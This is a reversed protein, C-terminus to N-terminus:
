SGDPVLAAKLFTLIVAKREEMLENFYEEPFNFITCFVPKAVFPFVTMSMINLLIHLPPIDRLRGAAIEEQMSMVFGQAAPFYHARLRLESVFRDQEQSIESMIFFPIDPEKLLLNVYTTVLNEVREWFTGEKAMAEAFRPIMKDLTQVIIQHYLKAKSRYYYHLLAKNVGAEEAIDQMKTAAFGKQVFQKRAVELILQEKDEAM